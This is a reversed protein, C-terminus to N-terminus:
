FPLAFILSAIESLYRFPILLTYVEEVSDRVIYRNITVERNQGIRHVRSAAQEEIMPNWHPEIIHVQSAATLNLRFNNITAKFQQRKNPIHVVWGIAGTGLTILM